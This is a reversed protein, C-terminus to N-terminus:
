WCAGARVVPVVSRAEIWGCTDGLSGGPSIVARLCMRFRRRRTAAELDGGRAAVVAMTTKAEAIRMPTLLTGDPATSKRVVEEAHMAALANEGSQRYCDM